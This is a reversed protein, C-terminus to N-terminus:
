QSPASSIDFAMVTLTSERNADKPQGFVYRFPSEDSKGLERKFNVHKPTIEAIKSLVASFDANRNFV